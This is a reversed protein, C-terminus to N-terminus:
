NVRKFESLIPLSIQHYYRLVSIMNIEIDNCWIELKVSNFELGGSIM